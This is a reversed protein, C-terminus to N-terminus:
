SLLHLSVKLEWCGILCALLTDWKVSVVDQEKPKLWSGTTIFTAM